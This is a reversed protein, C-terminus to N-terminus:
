KNGKKGYTLIVGVKIASYKFDIAIVIFNRYHKTLITVM